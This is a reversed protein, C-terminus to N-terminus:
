IRFAQELATIDWNCFLEPNEARVVFYTEITNKTKEVSFYNSHLFLMIHEDLATPHYPLSTQLDNTNMEKERGALILM